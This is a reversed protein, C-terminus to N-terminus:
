WEATFVWCNSNREQRDECCPRAKFLQYQLWFQLLVLLPSSWLGSCLYSMCHAREEGSASVCVPVPVTCVQFMLQHQNKLFDCIRLMWLLHHLFSFIASLPHTYIYICVCVYICVNTLHIMYIQTHTHECKHSQCYSPVEDQLIILFSM